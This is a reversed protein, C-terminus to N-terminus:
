SKGKGEENPEVAELSTVLKQAAEVLCEAKIRAGAVLGSRLYGQVNQLQFEVNRLCQDPTRATPDYTVTPTTANM